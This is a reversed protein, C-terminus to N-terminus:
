GEEAGPTGDPTVLDLYRAIVHCDADLAAARQHEGGARYQRAADRRAAIEDVLLSRVAETDLDRRPVETQGVRPHSYEWVQPADVAEANDVAALLTRYLQMMARDRRRQAARLDETIARRLEHSADGSRAM